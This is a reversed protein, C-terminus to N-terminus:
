RSRRHPRLRAALGRLMGGGLVDVNVPVELRHGSEATIHLVSTHSGPGLAAPDASVTLEIAQQPDLTFSVPRVTIGPVLARSVFQGTREGMNRVGLTATARTGEKAALYLSSFEAQVMAQQSRVVLSCPVTLQGLEHKILLEGEYRVEREKIGSTDAWVQVAVENGTVQLTSGLDETGTSLALWPARSSLSATMTGGGLNRLILEERLKSHAPGAFDLQPKSAVLAAPGRKRLDDLMERAHEYRYGQSFSIANNMVSVLGSHFEDLRRLLPGVLRGSQQDIVEQTPKAGLLLEYMICGLAFVDTQQHAELSGAQLMAKIEPPMYGDSGYFPGVEGLTQAAGLDLVVPEDAPTIKINAPKLDHHVIGQEHMHVVGECLRLMWRVVQHERYPGHTALLDELSDGAVFSQVLYHRDECDFADLLAPFAPHQGLARMIKQEHAFVASTEQAAAASAPTASEKIAVPTGDVATGQYVYAFAGAGIVAGVRYAGAGTLTEGPALITDLRYRKRRM